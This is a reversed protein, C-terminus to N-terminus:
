LPVTSPRDTGTPYNDYKADLDNDWFSFASQALRLWEANESTLKQTFSAQTPEPQLNSFVMVSARPASTFITAQITGLLMGTCSAPEPSSTPVFFRNNM